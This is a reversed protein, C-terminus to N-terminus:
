DNNIEKRLTKLIKTIRPMMIESYTRDLEADVGIVNSVHYYSKDDNLLGKFDKKLGKTFYLPNITDTKSNERNWLWLQRMHEHDFYKYLHLNYNKKIDQFDLFLFTKISEEYNKLDKIMTKLSENKLLSLQGSSLIEDYSPTFSKFILSKGNFFLNIFVTDKGRNDGELYAKVIKGKNVKNKTLRIYNELKVSDKQFENLMEKLLYSEKNSAKKEENWNNIQLAILIGIVVLIIEGIAYKLYKGKQNKM